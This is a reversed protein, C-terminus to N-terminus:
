EARWVEDERRYNATDIEDFRGSLMGRVRLTLRGKGLEILNYSNPAGARRRTSIASGAQISLVSVGCAHHDRADGRYAQHLHGALCVSVGAEAMARLALRADAIINHAAEGSPPVFPHHTVLVKEVTAPAEGFFERLRMLQEASLRGDKWFGSSWSWPRSSNLALVALQDSVHSSEGEAGIFRRYRGFTSFFRRFVNYLPIDHNGPTHIQPGRIRATWAAAERYQGVRARQTFDGSNVLLDFRQGALDELLAEAARPDVKGFHLDSIHALTPM